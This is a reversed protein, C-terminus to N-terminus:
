RHAVGGLGSRRAFDLKFAVSLSNEFWVTHQGGVGPYAFSVAFANEDWRVGSAGDDQFINKGVILVSSNPAIPSATRVELATALTLAERLNMQRIGNSAKEKSTRGVVLVM